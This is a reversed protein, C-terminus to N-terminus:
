QEFSWGGVAGRADGSPRRRLLTFRAAAVLLLAAAVGIVFPVWISSPSAQERRSQIELRKELSSIQEDFSEMKSSHRSALTELKDVRSGSRAQVNVLTRDIRNLRNMLFAQGQDEVVTIRTTMTDGIQRTCPDNCHMLYYEGPELDPMVFDLGVDMVRPDGSESFEVEGVYLADEPLPPPFPRDSPHGPLIYGYFPGEEPGAWFIDKDGHREVGDLWLGAWAHVPEGAVLVAESNLPVGEFEWTGGGARAGPMLAFTIACIITVLVTKALM